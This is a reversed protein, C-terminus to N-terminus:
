IISTDRSIIDKCYATRQIQKELVFVSENILLEQGNIFTLISQNKNKASELQQLSKVHSSFIWICDLQTPSLTPFAILNLQLNIPIPVKRRFGTLYMIASRRGEYTSYGHLCAEKIIKLPPKRVFITRDKEIVKTCYNMHKVPILAFTNSQIDYHDLIVRM